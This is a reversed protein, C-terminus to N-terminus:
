MDCLLLTLVLTNINARCYWRELQGMEACLLFSLSSHLARPPYSVPGSLYRSNSYMSNRLLDNTENGWSILFYCFQVGQIWDGPGGHFSTVWELIDESKWECAICPIYTGVCVCKKFHVIFFFNKAYFRTIKFVCSIYKIISLFIDKFFFFQWWFLVLWLFKMLM